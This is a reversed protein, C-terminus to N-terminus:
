YYVRNIMLSVYVSSVDDTLHVGCQNRAVDLQFVKTNCISTLDIPQKVDIWGLDIMRQLQLLSLPPYQLRVSYM